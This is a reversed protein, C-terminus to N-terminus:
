RQTRARHRRFRDFLRLVGRYEYAALFQSVAAKYEPLKREDGPTALITLYYSLYPHFDAYSLLGTAHIYHEFRELGDFFTTFAQLIRANDATWTRNTSSQHPTLITMVRADDVPIRTRSQGTDTTNVFDIPRGNFDLMLMVQQVDDNALFEKIETTVFELAKWRQGQRYQWLGTLFAAITMVLGILTIVDQTQM